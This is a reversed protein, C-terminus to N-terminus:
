SSSSYESTVIERIRRAIAKGIGKVEVLKEEPANFINLLTGFEVLLRNALVSSVGPIGALVYRQVEKIIVPKEGERVKVSKKKETQERKAFFYLLAASEKVTETMILPVNFDAVVSALAGFFANQTIRDSNVGKELLLIPKNYKQKLQILQPFLRGDIISNVFDKITKREVCIDDSIVFDGVDLQREEIKLKFLRLENKIDVSERTDVYIITETEERNMFQELSGLKMSSERGKIVKKSMEVRKKGVWFLVEDRTGSTMIAIVKGRRRRGTRGKRQVYRVADSVSDYFIVINCEAIDLGEEGVRTAFLVKIEGENIKNLTEIQEKQSQSFEGRKGILYASSVGWSIAKEYLMKAVDKYSVFVIVRDESSITALIKKLEVVKPHEEGVVLMSKTTEYATKFNTDEKLQGASRGKNLFLKECFTIFPEIGHSEILNLCHHLRILSTIWIKANMDSLKNRLNLLEKLSRTQIREPSTELLKNEFKQSTALLDMRIKALAPTPKVKIVEIKAGYFYKKVETSDESIIESHSINLTKLIQDTDAKRIPPSATFGVIRINPNKLLIAKGLLAYPHNGVAHHVEDFIASYFEVPKFFGKELDNLTIETTAVIVKKGWEKTRNELKDEGTIEVIEEPKLDLTERLTRAHQGVLVRTPAFLIFRRQEDQVLSKAIYLAAIITKGLGTPAIILCNKELCINSLREQYDRKEIRKAKIFKIEVSNM